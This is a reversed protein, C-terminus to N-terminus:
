FVSGFGFEVKNSSQNAKKTLNFGWEIRIPGIPSMWRFGTGATYTLSGFDQFDQTAGGADFFVVQKL